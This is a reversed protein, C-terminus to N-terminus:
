SWGQMEAPLSSDDPISKVEKGISLKDELTVTRGDIECSLKAKYVGQAFRDSIVINFRYNDEDIKIASFSDILKDDKYLAMKQARFTSEGIMPNIVMVSNLGKEFKGIM